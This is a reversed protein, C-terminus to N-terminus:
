RQRAMAFSPALRTTTARGVAGDRPDDVSDRGEIANRGRVKARMLASDAAHIIMDPTVDATVRMSTFGATITVVDSCVSARHPIALSEVAARMTEAIYRTGALDTNPLVAIFEEGGYRGFVDGPRRLSDRMVVAVRQLCTDGGLHGYRSNYAHFCDLDIMIAGLSTRDRAARACEAELMALARRRSLVGTLPDICVMTQLEKREQELAMITESLKRERTRRQHMEGQARLARRIRGELDRPRAPLTACETAGALFAADIEQEACVAVVPTGMSALRNLLRMDSYTMVVLDPTPIARSLLADTRAKPLMMIETCGAATLSARVVDSGSGESMIVIANFM